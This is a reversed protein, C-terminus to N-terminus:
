PPVLRSDLTFRQTGSALITIRITVPWLIKMTNTQLHCLIPELSRFLFIEWIFFCLGHNCCGLPIFSGCFVKPEQKRRLESYQSGTNIQERFLGVQQGINLSSWTNGVWRSPVANMWVIYKPIYILGWGMILIHVSGRSALVWEGKLLYNQMWETLPESSLSPVIM